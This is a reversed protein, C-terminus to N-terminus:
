MEHLEITVGIAFIMESCKRSSSTEKEPEKKGSSTNKLMRGFNIVIKTLSIIKPSKLTSFTKRYLTLGSPINASKEQLKVTVEM